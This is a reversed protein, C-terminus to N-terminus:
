VCILLGCDEADADYSQRGCLLHTMLGMEFACYCTFEDPIM